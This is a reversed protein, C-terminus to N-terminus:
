LDQQAAAEELLEASLAVRALAVRDSPNAIESEGLMRRLWAFEPDGLRRGLLFAIIAFFALDPGESLGYKRGEQIGSLIQSRMSDPGLKSCREPFHEQLHNELWALLRGDLMLNAQEDRIVM